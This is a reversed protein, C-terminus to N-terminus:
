NFCFSLSQGFQMLCCVASWLVVVNSALLIRSFVFDSFLLCIVQRIAPPTVSRQRLAELDIHPTRPVRQTAQDWAMCIGFVIEHPSTDSSSVLLLLM